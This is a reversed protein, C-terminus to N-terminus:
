SVGEQAKEASKQKLYADLSPTIDRATAESELSSSFTVAGASTIGTVLLAFLLAVGTGVRATIAGITETM